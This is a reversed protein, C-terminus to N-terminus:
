DVASKRVRERVRPCYGYVTFASCSAGFAESWGPPMGDGSDDLKEDSLEPQPAVARVRVSMWWYRMADMLHDDKKVIRGKEYRHYKQFEFRPVLIDSEPM